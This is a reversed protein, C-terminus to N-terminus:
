IGRNSPIPHILHAPRDSTVLPTLRITALKSPDHRGDTLLMSPDIIDEERVGTRLAHICCAVCDDEMAEIHHSKGKAVYVLQPAAFISATDGVTIKFTGKALLTTHDYPHKHPDTTDGQKEFHLQRVWVNSVCSIKQILM